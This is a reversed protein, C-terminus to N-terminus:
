GHIGACEELFVVDVREGHCRIHSFVAHHREQLVLAFPHYQEGQGAVLPRVVELEGGVLVALAEELFHEACRLLPAVFVVHHIHHAGCLALHKFVDAPYDGVM